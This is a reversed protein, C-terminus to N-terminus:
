RPVVHVRILSSSTEIWFDQSINTDKWWLSFSHECFGPMTLMNHVAPSIKKPYFIKKDHSSVCECDPDDHSSQLMHVEHVVDYQPSLPVIKIESNTASWEHPHETLVKAPALPLAPHGTETVLLPFARMNLATFDAKNQAVDFIMGMAGLAPKSLLLPVDGDVIAARVHATFKGLVFAVIVSYKSEFVKSAGKGFNALRRLDESANPNKGVESIAWSLYAEPIEKYLWGKYKGFCVINEEASQAEERIMRMLLGRTAKEPVPVNNEAAMIKLQSLTMSGLGKLNAEPSQSDMAARHERVVSRVEELTWRPHIPIGERMAEALLETKSM